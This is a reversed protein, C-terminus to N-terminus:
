PCGQGPEATPTKPPPSQAPPRSQNPPAKEPSPAATTGGVHAGAEVTTGARPPWTSPDTRSAASAALVTLGALAGAMAVALQMRGWRRYAPQPRNFRARKPLPTPPRFRDLETRLREEFDPGLQDSM